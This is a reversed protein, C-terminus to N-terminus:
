VKKNNLENQVLILKAVYNCTQTEGGGKIEVVATWCETNLITRFTEAWHKKSLFLIYVLRIKFFVNTSLLYAKNQSYSLLPVNLPPAEWLYFLTTYPM